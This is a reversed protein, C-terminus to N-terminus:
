STQSSLEKIKSRILFQINKLKDIEKSIEELEEDLQKINQGFYDNHYEEVIIRTILIIALMVATISASGLVLDWNKVGLAILAASVIILVSVFWAFSIHVATYIPEEINENFIKTKAPRSNRLAEVDVTKKYHQVSLKYIRNSIDNNLSELMEPQEKPESKIIKALVDTFPRTLDSM